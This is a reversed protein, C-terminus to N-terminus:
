EVLMFPQTGSLLGDLLRLPRLLRPLRLRLRLHLRLRPRLRLLRIRPPRRLMSISYRGCPAYRSGGM